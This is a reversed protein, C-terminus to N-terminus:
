REILRGELDAYLMVKQLLEEVQSIDMAKYLEAVAKDDEMM